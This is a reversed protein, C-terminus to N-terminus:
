TRMHSIPIVYKDYLTVTKVVQIVGAVFVFINHFLLRRDKDHGMINDM